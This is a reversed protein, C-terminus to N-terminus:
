IRFNRWSFKDYFRQKAQAGLRKLLRNDKIMLDMARAISDVNEPPVVIGTQNHLVAESVGGCNSAISPVGHSGAEIYVMGFGEADKESCHTTMIFCDAVEYWINLGADDVEGVFRVNNQLSNEQTKSWLEKEDPGTGLIVYVTNPHKIVIKKM